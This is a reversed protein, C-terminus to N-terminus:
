PDADAQRAPAASGRRRAAAQERAAARALYRAPDLFVGGRGRVGEILSAVNWRLRARWDWGRLIAHVLDVAIYGVHLAILRRRRRSWGLRRWLIHRNRLEYLWKWHDADGLLEYSTTAALWGKPRLTYRCAAPPPLQRRMVATASLAAALPGLRHSIAVGYLLDEGRIFLAAEPLGVADVVSRHLLPGEFTFVDIFRHRERQPDARVVVLEQSAEALVAENGCDRGDPQM